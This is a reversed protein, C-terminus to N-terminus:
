GASLRLQPAANTASSAVAAFPQHDHVLTSRVNRRWISALSSTAEIRSATTSSCSILTSSITNMAGPVNGFVVLPFTCRRRV